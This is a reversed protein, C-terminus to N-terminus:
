EVISKNEVNQKKSSPTIKLDQKQILKPSQNHSSLKFESLNDEVAPEKLPMFLERYKQECVFIKFPNIQKEAKKDHMCKEIEFIQQYTSM